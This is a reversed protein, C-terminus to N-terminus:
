MEDPFGKAMDAALILTVFSKQSRSILEQGLYIQASKLINILNIILM